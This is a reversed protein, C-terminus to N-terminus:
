YDVPLPVISTPDGGKRSQKLKQRSQAKQKKVELRQSYTLGKIKPEKMYSSDKNKKNFRAM